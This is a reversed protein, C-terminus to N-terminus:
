MLRNQAEDSLAVILTACAILAPSRPTPTEQPTSDIDREPQAYM